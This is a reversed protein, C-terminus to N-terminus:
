SGHNVAKAQKQAMELFEDDMSVLWDELERKNPWPCRQIEDMLDRYSIPFPYGMM